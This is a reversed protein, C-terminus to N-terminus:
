VPTLTLVTIDDVQGFQKAAQAIQEANGTSAQATREFGFLEGTASQAEVVGDTVLALREGPQLEFEHEEYSAQPLMGLPLAGPLDLERGNILPALHGANAAVVHGDKDVRLAICTVFGGQLRGYLRANLEALIEAPKQTFRAVTRMSGVLLSVAMAARMGKGSVDGLVILTSGTHVGELPIVQFFDGGVEQAPIYASTLLYGALRPLAEPILVQQLERASQLEREVAAQRAAAELVAHIVAYVIAAFLLVGTLTLPAFTNGNITFLPEQLKESFHWHTFRSGQALASEVSLLGSDLAAAVALFWRPADLRGKLGSGLIGLGILVLSYLYATAFIATFVGDATEVWPAVFPNSWDFILLAGDLMTAILVVLSVLRTIRAVRPNGDLRLLYLLLFFLGALALGLLPQLLGIGLRYPVPLRLSMMQYPAVTTGCYVALALLEWQRRNRLWQLFGFVAVLDYLFWLAFHFLNGRLWAYDSQAKAAAIAEPSGILPIARFGGVEAPDFSVLPAKWVRVALVGERAAGLGWTQQAREPYYRPHPPLRGFRGALKGNWYVEYADQIGPILLAFNPNAGAAPVLHLHKRYWGFGAYSPHGQAGWPKYATLQEWGNQGAADNAAPDAWAMNDGPHFQWPGDLPLTGKGIGEASFVPAASQAYALFLAFSFFTAVAAMRFTKRPMATLIGVPSLTPPLNSQLVAGNTPACDGICERVSEYTGV